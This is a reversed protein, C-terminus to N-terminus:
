IPEAKIEYVYSETGTNKMNRAIVFYPNSYTNISNRYDSYLLTKTSDYVNFTCKGSEKLLEIYYVTNPQVANSHYTQNSEGEVWDILKDGRIRYFSFAGYRNISLSDAFGIGVQCYASTSKMEVKASVKINDGRVNPIVYGCFSDNRSSADFIYHDTNFTLTPVTTTSNYRMIETYQSTNDASCDDYFLYSLVTITASASANQYSATLTTSDSFTITATAIGNSDTFATVTSSEDSAFTVEVDGLPEYNEQLLVSVTAVGGIATYSSELFELHYNAGSSADIFVFSEDVDTWDVGVAYIGGGSGGGVEIDGGDLLSQSNITAINEGSILTDQKGDLKADVTSKEYFWTKLWTLVDVLM